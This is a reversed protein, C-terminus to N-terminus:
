QELEEKDASLQQENIEPTDIPLSASSTFM